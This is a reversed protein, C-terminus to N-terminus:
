VKLLTYSWPSEAVTKEREEDEEGLRLVGVVVVGEVKWGEGEMSAVVKMRAARARGETVM